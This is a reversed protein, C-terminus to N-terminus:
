ASAVPSKIRVLNIANDSTQLIEVRYDGLLLDTGTEPIEELQELILGNLTKAEAVPLDWNMTRNLSRINAGANVVYSNPRVDPVVDADASEVATTFDGVIEELIDELTVLGQIDGYEDVVLAARQQTTQFQVLQRHLPTGEPVFYPEDILDHLQNPIFSALGEARILRRLDLMGLVHDISDRYVPLRTFSSNRISELVKEWDDDLNIGAIENHPVMVDDVSMYELELISQLMRHRKRPLLRGSEDLLVRLEEVTLHDEDINEPDIGFLRLLSNSFLNILWIFPFALKQMPYYFFAAPFALKEPHLAALTKPTVEAFIVVVLTFAVTGLAVGAPGGIQLAIYSVLSAATFNVLNNGILILTILRDPRKLLEEAFRAGRHGSRAKHKLRYRNLAMLATETGSFFASLLLLVFLIGLLIGPPIADSL